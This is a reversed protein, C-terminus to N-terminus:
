RLLLRHGPSEWCIVFSIGTHACQPSATRGVVHVWFIRVFFDKLMLVLTYSCVVSWNTDSLLTMVDDMVEPELIDDYTLLTEYM